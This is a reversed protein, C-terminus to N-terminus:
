SIVNSLHNKLCIVYAALREIIARIYYLLSHVRKECLQAITGEFLYLVKGFLYSYHNELQESMPELKIGCIRFLFKPNQETISHFQEIFESIPKFNLEFLTFTQHDNNNTEISFTWSLYSKVVQWCIQSFTLYILDWM